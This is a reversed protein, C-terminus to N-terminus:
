RRTAATVTIVGKMNMARHPLCFYDYAGVPAGAFSIRYTQNAQTFMPSQLPGLRNPMNRNLVDAAGAPIKAPDFQVNHPFGNVNVFEVIDGQRVTFNAPEYLYRSGQQLMRVRLVTGARQAPAAAPATPRKQAQASVAALVVLAPVAALAFRNM